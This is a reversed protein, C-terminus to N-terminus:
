SDRAIKVVIKKVADAWIHRAAISNVSLYKIVEYISNIKDERESSQNTAALDGMLVPLTGRPYEIMAQYGREGNWELAALRMSFDIGRDEMKKLQSMLQLTGMIRERPEEFVGVLIPLVVDAKLRFPEFINGTANVYWLEGNGGQLLAVPEQFQVAVSVTNPFVKELHVSAIWGSKLLNREIQHLDLRFLNMRGVPVNALAVIDAASLPAGQTTGTGLDVAVAQVV